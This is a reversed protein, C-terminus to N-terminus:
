VGRMINLTSFAQADRGTGCGSGAEHGFGLAVAIRERMSCTLDAITWESRGCVTSCEIGARAGSNQLM